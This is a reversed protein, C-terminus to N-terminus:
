FVHPDKWIPGELNLNGSVLGLSASGHFEKMNGEKTHVDVVSSLRGGYRAPFGAKFFNMSKIAENNFASFFGGIHNVQYVPNGDILFLNGDSNGGRVYLGSIGETGSSVGPTLQLTRIIDAEGLLTPSARITAHNIEM